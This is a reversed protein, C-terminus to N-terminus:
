GWLGLSDGGIIYAVNYRGAPQVSSWTKGIDKSLYLTTLDLNLLLM